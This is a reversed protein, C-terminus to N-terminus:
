SYWKELNSQSFGPRRPNRYSPQLCLSKPSVNQNFIRVIEPHSSYCGRALSEELSKYKSLDHGKTALSHLCQHFSNKRINNLKSFEVGELLQDVNHVTQANNSVLSFLLMSELHHKKTSAIIEPMKEVYYPKQPLDPTIIGRLEDVSFETKHKLLPRLKDEWLKNLEPTIIGFHTFMKSLYIITEMDKGELLPPLHKAQHMYYQRIVRFNIDTKSAVIYVLKFLALDNDIDRIPAKREFLSNLSDKFPVLSSLEEKAINFKFTNQSSPFKSLYSAMGQIIEKFSSHHEYDKYKLWLVEHFIGRWIELDIINHSILSQMHQLLDEGRGKALGTKVEDKLQKEIVM